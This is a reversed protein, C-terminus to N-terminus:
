TPGRRETATQGHIYLGWQNAFGPDNPVQDAALLWDPEAYRVQPSRRLDAVVSTVVGSPVALLHTGAGIVGVDRAGAAAVVAAATPASTGPQFGVLVQNPVFAPGAAGASAGVGVGGAIATAVLLLACLSVFRWASLRGRGAVM